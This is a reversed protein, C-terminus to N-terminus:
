SVWYPAPIIVEGGEDLTAALANFIVQKGGTGVTIQNLEYTLVNEGAFKNIIAQKLTPTGDVDTYKTVRPSQRSPM